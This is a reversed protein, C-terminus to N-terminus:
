EPNILINEIQEVILVMGKSCESGDSAIVAQATGDLFVMDTKQVTGLLDFVPEIDNEVRVEVFIGNRIDLLYFRHKNTNDAWVSDNGVDRLHGKVLVREQEWSAIENCSGQCYEVVDAVHLYQRDLDLFETEKDCSWFMVLLLFPMAIKFSKSM